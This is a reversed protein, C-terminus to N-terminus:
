KLVVKKTNSAKSYYTVIKSKVRKKVYAKVYFSTTTKKSLKLTLKCTKAKVNKVKKFSIKKAKKASTGKRVVKKYITYGTAKKNKSWTLTVKKKKKNLIAKKLKVASVTIKKPTTPATTTVAPPATAFPVPTLLPQPTAVPVGAIAKATTNNTNALAQKTAEGAGSFADPAIIVTESITIEHLNTLNKFADEKIDKLSDPLHLTNMNTCNEFTGKEITEIGNSLTVNHLNTNNQFAYEGITYPTTSNILLDNMNACQSFANKGISTLNGRLSVTHLNTCGYFANEEIVSVSGTESVLFQNLVPCNQFAGTKITGISGNIILNHLNANNQFAYEGIESISCGANVTVDRGAQSEAFAQSGIVLNPSNLIINTVPSQYFAKTDIRTLATPLQYLITSISGSEITPTETFAREASDTEVISFDGSARYSYSGIQYINTSAFAESAIVEITDPLYLNHINGGANQFAHSGISRVKQGRIAAPVVIDTLNNGGTPQHFGTITLMGDTYATEFLTEDTITIATTNEMSANAQSSFLTAATLASLLIFATFLKKM